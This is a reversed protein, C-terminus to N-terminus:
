MVIGGDLLDSDAIDSASDTMLLINQDNKKKAM